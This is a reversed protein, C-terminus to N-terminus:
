VESFMWYVIVWDENDPGVYRSLERFGIRAHARLSRVNRAAIETIAFDYRNIFAERYVQYMEELVGKGRHKKDVCVQGVVIYKYNILARGNLELKNFQDFMPVLVAIKDKSAITMALLYGVVEDDEKCVIQKELAQFESLQEFSHDVTVFGQSQIEEDDLAATLNRKQLTLIGWLDEDPQAFGFSLAM